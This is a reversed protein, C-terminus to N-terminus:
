VNKRWAKVIAEIGNVLIALPIWGTLLLLVTISLYFEYENM